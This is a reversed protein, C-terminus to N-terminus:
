AVKADFSAVLPANTLETIELTLNDMTFDDAPYFARIVFISDANRPVIYQKDMLAKTTSGNIKRYESIPNLLYFTGDELKYLHLTQEVANTTKTVKHSYTAPPTVRGLGSQVIPFEGFNFSPFIWHKGPNHLAISIASIVTASLKYIPKNLDSM